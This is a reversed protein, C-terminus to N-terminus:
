RVVLKKTTMGQPTHIRLLYAGSPLKSVDLTAKLGEAKLDMVKRGAANFVEVRSVGFSSLVEASGTAPNPSVSVYRGFYEPMRIAVTDGTDVITTDVVTTDVITTDVITTDILNEGPTLIPYFFFQVFSGNHTWTSDEQQDAYPYYLDFNYPFGHFGIFNLPWRTKMQYGNEDTEYVRYGNNSVGVFFTDLVSVPTEFYREYVPFATSASWMFDDFVNVTDFKMYYSVPTSRMKVPLEEPHMVMRGGVQKYLRLNEEVHRVNTDHIYLAGEALMSDTSYLHRTCLMAAIGYVTLENKAYFENVTAFTNTGCSYARWNIDTGTVWGKDNYYDEKPGNLYLTDQAQLNVAIAALTILSLVTKKM